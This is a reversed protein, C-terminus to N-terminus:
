LAGPGAITTGFVILPQAPPVVPSVTTKLSTATDLKVPGSYTQALLTSVINNATASPLDFETTGLHLADPGTVSLSALAHTQGVVNNFTANGSIALAQGGSTKGDVTGGVSSGPTGFTVTALVNPSGPTFADLM